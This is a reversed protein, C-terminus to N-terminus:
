GIKTKEMSLMETKEVMRSQVCKIEKNKDTKSILSLRLKEVVCDGNNPRQINLQKRLQHERWKRQIFVV